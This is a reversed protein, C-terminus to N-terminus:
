TVDGGLFQQQLDLIHDITEEVDGLLERKEDETLKYPLTFRLIANRDTGLNEVLPVEGHRVSDVAVTAARGPLGQEGRFAGEERLRTLEAHLEEAQVAAAQVRGAAAMVQEFLSPTVPQAQEGTISDMGLMRVPRVMPKTRLVAVSDGMQRYGHCCLHLEGRGCVQRPLPAKGTYILQATDRGNRLTVVKVLDNWPADFEITFTDCVATDAVPASTGRYTLRDKSVFFELNM